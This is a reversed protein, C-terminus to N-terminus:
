YAVAFSQRVFHPQEIEDLLAVAYDEAAPM